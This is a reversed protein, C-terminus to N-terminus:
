TKAILWNVRAEIVASLMQEKTVIKKDLLVRAQLAALSVRDPWLPSIYYPDMQLSMISDLNGPSSKGFGYILATDADGMQIKIGM